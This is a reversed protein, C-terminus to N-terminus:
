FYKDVQRNKKCSVANELPGGAYEPDSCGFLQNAKDVVVPTILRYQSHSDVSTVLDRRPCDTSSDLWVFIIIKNHM